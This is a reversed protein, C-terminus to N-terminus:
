QKKELIQCKYFGTPILEMVQTQRSMGNMQLWQGQNRTIRVSPSITFLWERNTEEVDSDYLWTYEMEGWLSTIKQDVKDGKDAM